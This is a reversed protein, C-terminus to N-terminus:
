EGRVARRFDMLMEAYDLTKEPLRMIGLHLSLPIDGAPTSIAEGNKAAIREMAADAASRDGSGTILVFEDRGIRFGFEKEPTQPKETIRLASSGEREMREAAAALVLDGADRGYKENIAMLGCVDGCVVYSGGLSRLADYIESDDIKRMDYDGKKDNLAVALRPYLAPMHGSRRYQTPTMGRLKRFARIFVEHSNYGYKMAIDCVSMGTEALDRCALSHRRKEVYEGVSYHLARRFLSSLYPRSIHVARAIDDPTLTGTINDEIYCLAESIVATEKM